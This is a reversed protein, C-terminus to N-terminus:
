YYENKVVNLSYCLSKDPLNKTIAVNAGIRCDNGIKCSIVKAGAGIFCRDGIVILRDKKELFENVGITVQHFLTVDNGIKAMSSVIVGDASHPLKLRSGIQAKYSIQSNNKLFLFVM